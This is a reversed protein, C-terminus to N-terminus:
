WNTALLASALVIGVPLLQKWCGSIRLSTNIINWCGSGDLMGLNGEVPVGPHLKVTRTSCELDGIRRVPISFGQDRAKLVQARNQILKLNAEREQM